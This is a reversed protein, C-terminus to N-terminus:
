AVAVSLYGKAVAYPIARTRELVHLPVGEAAEADVGTLPLDVLSLQHRAALMRAIGETSAVGEDVIAQAISGSQGARGRVLALKDAPVLGTAALLDSVLEALENVGPGGPPPTAPAGATGEAPAPRRPPPRDSEM